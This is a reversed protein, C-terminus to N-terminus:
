TMHATSELSSLREPEYDTTPQPDFANVDLADRQKHAREIIENFIEDNYPFVM